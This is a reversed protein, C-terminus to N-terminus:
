CRELTVFVAKKAVESREDCDNTANSGPHFPTTLTKAPSILSVSTTSSSFASM